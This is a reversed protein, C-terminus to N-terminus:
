DSEYNSGSDSNNDENENEDEDDSETNKLETETETDEEQESETDSDSYYESDSQYESDSYYSLYPEWYKSFDRDIQNLKCPRFGIYRLNRFLPKPVDDSIYGYKKLLEACPEQLYNFIKNQIEEPLKSIINM